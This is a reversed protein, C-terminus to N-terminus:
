SHSARFYGGQPTTQPQIFSFLPFPEYISLTAIVSPAFALQKLINNNIHHIHHGVDISSGLSHRFGGRFNCSISTGYTPSIAYFSVYIPVRVEYGRKRNERSFNPRSSLKEHKQVRNKKSYQRTFGELKISEEKSGFWKTCCESSQPNLLHPIQRFQCM